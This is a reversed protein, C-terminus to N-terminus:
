KCAASPPTGGGGGADSKESDRGLPDVTVIVAPWLALLVILTAALPPNLWGTVSDHEPAGAPAAHLIEGADMLGLSPVALECIEIVEVARPDAKKGPLLRRKNSANKSVISAALTSIKAENLLGSRRRPQIAAGIRAETMRTMAAQLPPAPVCVLEMAVGVGVGLGLGVGLLPPVGAPVYEKAM